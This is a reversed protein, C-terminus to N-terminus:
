ISKVEKKEGESLKRKKSPIKEVGSRKQSSERLKQSVPYVPIQPSSQSGTEQLDVSSWRIDEKVQGGCRDPSLASEESAGQGCQPEPLKPFSIGEGAEIIDFLQGQVPWAQNIKVVKLQLISNHSFTWQPLSIDTRCKCSPCHQRQPEVAIRILDAAWLEEFVKSNCNKLFNHVSKGRNSFPQHLCTIIRWSKAVYAGEGRPDPVSM